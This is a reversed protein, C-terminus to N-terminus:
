AAGSINVMWVVGFQDTLMGFVDGWMQKELPTLVKGTAALKDWYVRLEADDDGSLSISISSGDSYDAGPPNDAAMIAFGRETELLGHMIKSGDFGEPAGFEAFTNVALTGGLVSRYFELAERATGDFTIYPNLRSAV